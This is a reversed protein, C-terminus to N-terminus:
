ILFYFRNIFGLDCLAFSFKVLAFWVHLRAPPPHAQTPAHSSCYDWTLDGHSLNLLLLCGPHLISRIRRVPHSSKEGLMGQPPTKAPNQLVRLLAFLRIGSGERCVDWSVQCCQQWPFGTKVYLTHCFTCLVHSLKVCMGSMALGTDSEAFSQWIFFYRHQHYQLNKISHNM